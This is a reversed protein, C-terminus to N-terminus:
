WNYDLGITWKRDEKEINADAPLNDYDFQLQVVSSFQGNIPYKLGTVTNIEYDGSTNLSQQIAHRHFFEMGSDNFKWAFDLNWLFAPRTRKVGTGFQEDVYNVTGKGLLNIYTTELFQYGMGLGASTRQDIDRFEDEEYFANGTAFWQGTLFQDYQYSGRWMNRTKQSQAGEEQLSLAFTHRSEIYRWQSRADVNYTSIDNNGSSNEVAVNIDGKQTLAPLPEALTEGAAVVFKWSSITKVGETCHLHQKERQVYMWCNRLNQGSTKLDFHDGSEILNIHFQEIVLDGLIPSSWSVKGDHIGKLSGVLTEGDTFHLRDAWPSPSFLGFLFPTCIRFVFPARCYSLKKM